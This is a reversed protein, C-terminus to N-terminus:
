STRRRPETRRTDDGSSRSRYGSHVRHNRCSCRRHLGHTRCCQWDDLPYRGHTTTCNATRRKTWSTSCRRSTVGTDRKEPIRVCRTHALVGRTLIGRRFLPYCRRAGHRHTDRICRWRYRTQPVTELRLHSVSRSGRENRNCRSERSVTHVLGRFRYVRSRSTRGAYVRCVCGGNPQSLHGWFHALSDPINFLETIDLAYWNLLFALLAMLIGTFVISQVTIRRASAHDDAGVRQSVLIQIGGFAAGLIVVYLGILPEVLGLAGVATSDFRGLWFIDIIQQASLALQQTVIPIAIFALSKKLSGATIQSEPVDFM